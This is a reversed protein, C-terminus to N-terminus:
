TLGNQYLVPTHCVCLRASVRRRSIGASAYRRAPLFQLRNSLFVSVVM